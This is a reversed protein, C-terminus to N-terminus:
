EFDKRRNEYEVRYHDISAQLTERGQETLDWLYVTRMANHPEVRKEIESREVIGAKMLRRLQTHTKFYDANQGRREAYLLSLATTELPGNRM